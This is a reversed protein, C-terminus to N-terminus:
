KADIVVVKTSLGPVNCTVKSVGRQSALKHWAVDPRVLIVPWKSYVPRGKTTNLVIGDQIGEVTGLAVEGSLNYAVRSGIKVDKGNRDKFM